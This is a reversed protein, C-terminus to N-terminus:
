TEEQINISLYNIQVLLLIPGLVSGQPVSHKIEKLDLIHRGSVYRM